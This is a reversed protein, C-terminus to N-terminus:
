EIDEVYDLMVKFAEQIAKVEINSNSFKEGIEKIINIIFMNEGTMDCEFYCLIEWALQYPTITKPRVMLLNIVKIYDKIDM